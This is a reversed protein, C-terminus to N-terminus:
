PDTESAKLVDLALNFRNFPASLQVGAIHPALESLLGAAISVGERSAEEGTPAEKMRRMIIDPVSVGPLENNMFEANKYSVLPWIGAIIPIEMSKIRSRFKEFIEIDFVPQTIAFEAGAEVKWHFRDIELEFDAAGPNVGVGVLFSTPSGFDHGGIDLGRNLGFLVNTLGISDIDFVSTADPYDGAKVPDGTIILINRLGLAHAGLLDSQMGIINRDRCCYHLVSEIGSKKEILVAMALPSMRSSARPSDPINIADIGSEKLREASAIVKDPECGRPPVLEVLRVFEKSTIKSALLSKDGIPVSRDIPDPTEDKITVTVHHKAPKVSSLANRMAKIHEPTTGCCGGVVSAGASVFRRSYEALYEPSAMYINRGDVNQPIGANPQASLPTEVTRAMKEIAELTIRPGVSCNVGVVDAGWESLRMAFEEPETGFLGLGDKQLTMQAIIPLDCIKKVGNMAQHLENLDSFTELIFLDVGGELLALGQEQFFGAAEENSTPGWPEIKIGLPGISGAVLAKGSAARRALRTGEINIKEIKSDLGHLKLKVRNAGFTNTEIVDAGAAVYQRHIKEILTPNSLNIEDFCRNIFVGHDYLVTGMAGDFLVVGEKLLSMFDGTM